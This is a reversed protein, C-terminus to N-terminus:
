VRGSTARSAAAAHHMRPILLTCVLLVVAMVTVALFIRGTDPILRNGGILVILGPRLAQGLSAAFTYYGFATDYSGPGATNAVTAQQGVVLCLHGTGLLVSGLVLGQISDGFFVFSLGSAVIVGAGALVVQREGFRDVAGGSPVALVLPVVAFSASLVGLWAASVDLELARYSITPRLVFTLTQTLASHVLLVAM